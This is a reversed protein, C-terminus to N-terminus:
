SFHTQLWSRIKASVLVCLLFSSGWVINLPPVSHTSWAVLIIFAYSWTGSPAASVMWPLSFNSVWAASDHIATLIYWSLLPTYLHFINVYSKDLCCCSIDSSICPCFINDSLAIGVTILKGLLIISCWARRCSSHKAILSQINERSCKSYRQFYSGFPFHPRIGISSYM